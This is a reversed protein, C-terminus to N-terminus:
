MMRRRIRGVCATGLGALLIAGPAPVTPNGVKVTISTSALLDGTTKDSASLTYYYFGEDEPDFGVASEWKPQWSNQAVSYTDILTTYSFDGTDFGGSQPTLNDGFAHDGGLAIIDRIELYAGTTSTMSLSYKLDGVSYNTSGDYNTNISWEYNWEAREDGNILVLRPNFCYVNSNESELNYIPQPTNNGNYRLKARLGLEIGNSRDVTFAGNGVGSGMIVNSTLDQNYSMAAMVSSGTFALVLLLLIKKM